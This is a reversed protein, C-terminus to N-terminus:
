LISVVWAPIWGREGAQNQVYLWQGKKGIKQRAEMADGIVTLLAKRKARAAAPSNQSAQARMKLDMWAYIQLGAVAAAFGGPGFAFAAGAQAAEQESTVYWAAVYGVFGQPTKINLWQNLQGILTKALAPDGLVTLPDSTTVMTLINSATNPQARVNLVDTPYVTLGTPPPAQGTLRLSKGEVWGMQKNLRQIQVITGPVGIKTKAAVPDGLIQLTEGDKLLDWLASQLDAGSHLGPTGIAYVVLGSPPPTVPPTVPPQAGPPYYAGTLYPMPDVIGLPYGPTKAGTIKLTLHLHSGFSNGTNDAHAILQGAQVKDGPSVLVQDLHAYVTQFATKGVQHNIRIQLGYPHNDPHNAQIVAGPAAAYVNADMDAYFDIGEHGPLNFPKYFDPNEGFGQNIIRSDVPWQIQILDAM